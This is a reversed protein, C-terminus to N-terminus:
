QFVSPRDATRCWFFVYRIRIGLPYFYLDIQLQKKGVYKWIIGLSFVNFWLNRWDPCLWVLHSETCKTISVAFFFMLIHEMETSIIHMSHFVLGYTVMGSFYSWAISKLTNTLLKVAEVKRRGCQSYLHVPKIDAPYLNALAFWFWQKDVVCEVTIVEHFDFDLM